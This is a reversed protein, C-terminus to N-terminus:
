KVKFTLPVVKAAGQYNVTLQVTLKKGRTKKKPITFTCGGKASGALRKAGLKATCSYSEPVIAAPTERGDPPLHLATPVIVFRKGARPGASPTTQVDVSNIQPGNAEIAYNYAGDDPATDLGFTMINPAIPTMSLTTAVFNFNASNGLESRNVSILIQNTDGSVRVTTGPASVWRSGDWRGFGYSNGGLSFGYEAGNDTQSGTNPNADADIDLYLENQDSSALNSGVIRFIVQGSGKDGAVTVSTIDGAGGFSDGSADTYNGSSASPVLVLAAVLAAAIPGARKLRAPVAPRPLRFQISM